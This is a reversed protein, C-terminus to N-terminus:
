SCRIVSAHFRYILAIEFKAGARINWSFTEMSIGLKARRRMFLRSKIHLMCLIFIFRFIRPKTIDRHRSYHSSGRSPDAGVLSFFGLLKAGVYGSFKCSCTYAVPSISEFTTLKKRKRGVRHMAAICRLVRACFRSLYIANVHDQRVLSKKNASDNRSIFGNIM